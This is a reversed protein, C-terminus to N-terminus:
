KKNKEMWSQYDALTDLDIEGDPFEVAIV